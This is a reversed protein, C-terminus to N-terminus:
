CSMLWCVNETLLARGQSSQTRGHRSLRKMADQPTKMAGGAKVEGWQKWFIRDPWHADGLCWKGKGDPMWHISVHSEPAPSIPCGHVTGAGYVQSSSTLALAWPVSPAASSCQPHLSLCTGRTCQDDLRALCCARPSGTEVLLTFPEQSIASSILRQCQCAHVSCM